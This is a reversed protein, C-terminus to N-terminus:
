EGATTMAILKGAGGQVAGAWVGVGLLVAPGVELPVSGVGLLVPGVGALVPLPTSRAVRDSGDGPAGCSGGAAWQGCVVRAKEVLGADANALGLQAPTASPMAAAARDTTTGLSLAAVLAAVVLATKRM